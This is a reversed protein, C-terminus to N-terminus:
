SGSSPNNVDSVNICSWCKSSWNYNIFYNFFNLIYNLIKVPFGITRAFIKDFTILRFEKFFLIVAFIIFISLICINIVDIKLLSAAKGFLFHQLGAQNGTGSMQTISLLLVGIGFFISLIISTSTEIKIKSKSSIYDILILSIFGTIFAGGILYLPNKNKALLFGLCLGPLMSHAVADGVLSKKEFMFFSGIVASSSALLLIGITIYLTTIDTFLSHLIGM